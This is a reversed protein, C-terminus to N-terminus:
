NQGVCRIGPVVRVANPGTILDTESPIKVRRRRETREVLNPSVNQRKLLLRLAQQALNQAGVWGVCHFGANLMCRKAHLRPKASGGAVSVAKSSCSSSCGIMLTFSRRPHIRVVKAPALWM